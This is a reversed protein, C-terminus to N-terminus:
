WLKQQRLDDGNCRMSRLYGRTWSQGPLRSIIEARRDASASVGATSVVANVLGAPAIWVGIGMSLAIEGVEDERWSVDEMVLTCPPLGVAALLDHRAAYQRPVRVADCVCTPGNLAAVIRRPTLVIGCYKM